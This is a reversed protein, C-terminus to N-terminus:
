LLFNTKMASVKKKLALVYAWPDFYGENERGFSGLEIGEINLWPFKTVLLHHPTHLLFSNIFTNFISFYDIEHVALSQECNIDRQTHKHTHTHM